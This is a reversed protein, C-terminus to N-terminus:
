RHSRWELFTASPLTVIRAVYLGRGSPGEPEYEADFGAATFCALMEEVTFLGLEHFETTHEIGDDRGILYEFRLRSLRGVVDIHSMRCVVTGEAEITKVSIRRVKTRDPTFWPEVLVVGDGVLHARFREFTRRVNALTGVYGISSFVRAAHSTFKDQPSNESQFIQVIFGSM